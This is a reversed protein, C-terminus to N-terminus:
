SRTAQMSMEQRTNTHDLAHQSMALDTPRALRLDYVGGINSLVIESTLHSDSHMCLHIHGRSFGRSAREAFSSGGALVFERTLSLGRTFTGLPIHQSGRNLAASLSDCYVFSENSLCFNHACGADIPFSRELRMEKDLVALRSPTGRKKSENHYVLWINEETVYVSNLHVYNPSDRGSTLRGAPYAYTPETLRGHKFRYRALRNLSTETIYLYGDRADIQHCGPPLYPLEIRPELAHGDDLKFSVIRGFNSAPSQYVYWRGQHYTIGYCNGDLLRYVRGDYYHLIGSRSSFLLEVDADLRGTFPIPERKLTVGLRGRCALNCYQVRRFLDPAHAALWRRLYTKPTKM